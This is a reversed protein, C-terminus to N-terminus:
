VAGRTDAHGCGRRSRLDTARHVANALAFRQTLQELSLSTVNDQGLIGALVSILVSKGNAGAGHLWLAKSFPAPLLLSGSFDQILRVIGDDGSAFWAIFEEFQTCRAAPDFPYPVCGTSFFNDSSPVLECERGEEIGTLDLIGNKVALLLRNDQTEGIQFPPNNSSPVFTLQEIAAVTKSVEAPELTGGQEQAFHHIEKLLAGREVREYHAGTFVHANQRWTVIRNRSMLFAEALNTANM